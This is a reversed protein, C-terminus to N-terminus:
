INQKTNVYYLLFADFNYAIYPTEIKIVFIKEADCGFSNNQTRLKFFIIAISLLM